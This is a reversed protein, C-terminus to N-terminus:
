VVVWQGTTLQLSSAKTCPTPDIEDKANDEHDDEEYDNGEEEEDNDKDGNNNEAEAKRISVVKFSDADSTEAM